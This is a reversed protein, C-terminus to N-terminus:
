KIPGTSNWLPIRLTELFDMNEPVVKIKSARSEYSKTCCDSLQKSKIDKDRSWKVKSTDRVAVNHQYTSHLRSLISNLKIYLINVESANFKAPCTESKSSKDDDDDSGALVPLVLFLGTM